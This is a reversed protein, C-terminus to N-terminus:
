GLVVSRENINIIDALKTGCRFGVFELLKTVECFLGIVLRQNLCIEFFVSQPFVINLLTLDHACIDLVHIIDIIQIDNCPSRFFGFVAFM